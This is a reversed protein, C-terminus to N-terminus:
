ASPKPSRRRRRRPASSSSCGATGAPCSTRWTSPRAGESSRSTTTFCRISARSRSPSSRCIEMVHDAARYIDEYGVAVLVREPHSWVLRVRASLITVLTSESGVLARAVNFRGDEGPLLEDLNYGSVRRPLKPFRTRVLDGWRARLAALQAYVAAERDGKRAAADLDADTMSGVRMVTGDYLLVEMEETNDVVKGAMQAYSGCSNNGLMGGFGCRSHTAPRPGFTLEYPAAAADLQDCVVGPEVVASHGISDFEVIRHMYKSFDLVVGTNTTQGALGTGGARSVILVGHARCAAVTAIVDERTRPVVVGLPVHRYNSADLAYMAQSGPDFRVEGEVAKRLARELERVDVRSAPRDDRRAHAPRRLHTPDILQEGALPMRVTMRETRLM